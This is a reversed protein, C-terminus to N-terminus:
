KPEKVKAIHEKMANSWDAKHWRDLDPSLFIAEAVIAPPLALLAKEAKSTWTPNTKLIELAKHSYIANQYISETERLISLDYENVGAKTQAKIQMQVALLQSSLKKIVDASDNHPDGRISIANKRAYSPDFQSASPSNKKPLELISTQLVLM